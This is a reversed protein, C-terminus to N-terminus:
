DEERVERCAAKLEAVFQTLLPRPPAGKRTILGAKRVVPCDPADLRRIEGRRARLRILHEPLIGVFGGTTLLSRILNLSNTRVVHRPAPLGDASFYRDLFDAMHPQDVVAWRAELLEEKSLRRRGVLPHAAGAYAYARLEYVPEVLLDDPMQGQGLNSFIVDLRGDALAEVLEELFGQRVTLSVDADDACVRAVARDVIHDAFMAAMGVALHGKAGAAIAKIEARARAAENLMLRAYEYLTAGAPTPVVGRPRRDLLTAGVLEELNKISRTLAPQSIFVRDAAKSLNGLEVVAAFHRLHRLEM